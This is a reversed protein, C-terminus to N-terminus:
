CGRNLTVLHTQILTQAERHIAELAKLLAATPDDKSQSM